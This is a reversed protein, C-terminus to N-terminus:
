IRPPRIRSSSGRRVRASSGSLLDDDDFTTLVLVPPPQAASRLERTARVGDVKKMRLGMLVVDPTHEAVAGPVESGDACEGVIVFGDKRRLIRRLGSRVLDQDDVLLVRIEPGTVVTGSHSPPDGAPVFGPATPGRRAGVVAQRGPRRPPHWRAARRTRMGRLGSGRSGDPSPVRGRIPNRIALTMREPEITLRVDTGAGPSHKAVNALSEQTIRYLGLGVTGTVASLDGHLDFDVPLGARRFDDVLEPLDAVGPEPRTGAPGADLLGVTRRIDAM